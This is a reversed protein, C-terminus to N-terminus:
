NRNANCVDYVLGIVDQLTAQTNRQESLMKILNEISQGNHEYVSGIAQLKYVTDQNKSIIDNYLWKGNQVFNAKVLGEFDRMEDPIKIHEIATGDLMQKYIERAINMFMNFSIEHLSNAISLYAREGTFDDSMEIISRQFDGALREIIEKNGFMEAFLNNMIRANNIFDDYNLVTYNMSKLITQLKNASKAIDSELMVNLATLQDNYGYKQIVRNLIQYAADSAYEFSKCAEEIEEESSDSDIHGEYLKDIIDEHFRGFIVEDSCTYNEQPTNFDNLIFMSSFDKKSVNEIINSNINAGMANAFGFSIALCATLSQVNLKM